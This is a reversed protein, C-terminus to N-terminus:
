AENKVERSLLEAKLRETQEKMAQNAVYSAHVAAVYSMAYGAWVEVLPRRGYADLPPMFLRDFVILAIIGGFIYFETM